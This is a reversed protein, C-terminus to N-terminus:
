SIYPYINMFIQCKEGMFFKLNIKVLWYKAIGTWVGFNILKYRLKKKEKEPSSFTLYHWQLRHVVCWVQASSFM